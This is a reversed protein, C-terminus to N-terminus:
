TATSPRVSPAILRLVRPLVRVEVPLSGFPEGDTEVEVSGSSEALLRRARYREVRPHRSIMGRYLWHVSRLLDPVGVPRIVTVDLWGDDLRATPCLEMGAGQFRGNGVAVHTVPGSVPEPADELAIAIPAPKHRSLETLVARFYRWPSWSRAESARLRRAVAAGLGFSAVNLFFRRGSTASRIEGVDVSAVVGRALVEVAAEPRRPIGVSRAFDSASGLPLVGLASGRGEALVANAAEHATGDGGAAVVCELGARIMARALEFGEGPGSTFEVASPKLRQLVLHRIRAWQRQARGGGALPNVVIGTPGVM